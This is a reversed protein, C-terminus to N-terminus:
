RAFSGLVPDRPPTGSGVWSPGIGPQTPPCKRNPLDLVIGSGARTASHVLGIRDAESSEAFEQRPEIHTDRPDANADPQNHPTCHYGLM